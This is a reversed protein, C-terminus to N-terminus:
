DKRKYEGKKWAEIFKAWAVPNFVNMPPAQGAYYFKQAQEQLYISASEKGDYPLAEGLEALRERELNIHARELDDDPINLALFAQRFQEKTPWPYIVTPSIYVTDSTLLQIISYKSEKLTDSLVFEVPKYGISSFVVVDGKKAVLSFFGQYNSMTGRYSEKIMVTAYPIGTLSDSTMILGSFQILEGKEQASLKFVSLLFIAILPIFKKM